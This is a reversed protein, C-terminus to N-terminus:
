QQFSKLRDRTREVKCAESVVSAYDPSLNMGDNLAQFWCETDRLKLWASNTARFSQIAERLYGDGEIGGYGPPFQKELSREKAEYAHELKQELIAKERLCATASPSGGPCESSIASTALALLPAVLYSTRLPTM